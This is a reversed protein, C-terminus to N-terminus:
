GCNGWAGLLISLDAGDVTGDSNVDGTFGPAGRTGWAGLLAALDAGDVIGNGTLDAPCPSTCLITEIQFNDLAAETVSNNPSDSTGFRVKVFATPQVFDSVRFFSAQWMSNTTLITMIPTWNLGDNNSIEVTFSDAGAVGFDDCFFWAAFSVMADQGTMDFTPSTLFSPGGDVDAASAAGGIVGNQTVFCKVGDGNTSDDDPAALSGAVVTGIPDAIAWAGGSLSDDSIAKWGNAQGEFDERLTIETGLAALASYTSAPAGPPDSFNVNGPSLQSTIWWSITEPCPAAPLTASYLSGGLPVLPSTAPSSGPLIYHLVASGPVVAGGGFTTLAVQFSNPVNPTVFAPLGQPYSAVVGVPPVNMWIRIGACRGIILDKWGDGNLDFVAVDYTGTLDSTPIGGTGQEQITVSPLNGLNRYLHLRRGCGAVDVDVDCILVDNFGDNNIDVIRSNGGFGDDGGSQFSFTKSEFNAMGDAGNGSNLLFRDSGDDSVIADLKGDNNLEGVSMNYHAGGSAVEHKNFFGQQAPNNYTAKFPGNESKVVDKFGDGNMDVIAAATGFGSAIMAATMRTLSQDTFTGSGNNILLRDGQGSNYTVLYLDVFGDGTVDGAAIGCGNPAEPLQPFRAQEYKFGKWQGNGDLGQNMYIRPHSITKPLSQNLATCTVLDLWGDNNFDAIAADRDNTIDLFGQGGDDAATAFENTRDVLVGGENMLLVNRKGNPTTVPQKRMVVLDIDGDNDLDAYAFDKEEPDASGLAPAAVLRTSTQNVFTVWGQGSATSAITGALTVAVVSWALGIFPTTVITPKKM